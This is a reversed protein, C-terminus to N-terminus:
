DPLSCTRGELKPMFVYSLWLNLITGNGLNQSFHIKFLIKGVKEM